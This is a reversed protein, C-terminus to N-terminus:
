LLVDSQEGTVSINNGVNKQKKLGESERIKSAFRSNWM